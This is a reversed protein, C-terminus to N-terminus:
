GCGRIVPPVQFRHSDELDVLWGPPIREILQDLSIKLLFLKYHALLTAARRDRLLQVALRVVFNSHCGSKGHAHRWKLEENLVAAKSVTLITRFAWDLMTKIAELLVVALRPV